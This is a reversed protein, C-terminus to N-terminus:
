NQHLNIFKHMLRGDTEVSCRRDWIHMWGGQGNLGVRGAFSEAVAGFNEIEDCANSQQESFNATLSVVVLHRKLTVHSM